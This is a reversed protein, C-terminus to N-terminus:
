IIKLKKTTTKKVEVVDSDVEKVEVVDSDVNAILEETKVDELNQDLKENM